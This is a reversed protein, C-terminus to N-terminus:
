DGTGGVPQGGPQGPPTGAGAASWGAAEPAPAPVGEAAGPVNGEAGEPPLGPLVPTADEPQRARCDRLVRRVKRDTATREGM